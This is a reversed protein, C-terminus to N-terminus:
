KGARIPINLAGKKYTCVFDLLDELNSDPTIYRWEEEGRIHNDGNIFYYMTKLDKYRREVCDFLTLIKLEKLLNSNIYEIRNWAQYNNFTVREISSVDVYWISTHSVSVKMWDAGKAMIPFLILGVIFYKKARM